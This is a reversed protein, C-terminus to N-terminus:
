RAGLPIRAVEEYTPGHGSLVSSYLTVCPVSMRVDSSTLFVTDAASLAEPRIPGDKRARCLTVHPRYRRAPSTATGRAEYPACTSRVAQELASAAGADAEVAVWLMRARTPRPVARIRHLRMDFPPLAGVATELDRILAGADERPLEGIFHVTVHLNEDSVWRRDAWSPDADLVAPRVAALTARLPESLTIAVFARM